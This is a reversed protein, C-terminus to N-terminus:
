WISFEQVCMAYSGVASSFAEHKVAKAANIHGMLSSPLLGILQVFGCVFETGLCLYIEAANNENSEWSRSLDVAPQEM